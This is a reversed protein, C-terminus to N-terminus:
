SSLREEERWSDVGAISTTAAVDTQQAGYRCCPECAHTRLSSLKLWVAPVAVTLGRASYMIYPHTRPPPPPMHLNIFNM